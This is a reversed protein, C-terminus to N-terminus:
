YFVKAPSHWLFAPKQHQWLLIKATFDVAYNGAPFATAFTKGVWTCKNLYNSGLHLHKQEWWCISMTQWHTYISHISVMNLLFRWPTHSVYYAANTPRLWQKPRQGTIHLNFGRWLEHLSLTKKFSSNLHITKMDFSKSCM